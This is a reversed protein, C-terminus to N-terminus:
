NKLFSKFLIIMGFLLLGLFFGTYVEARTHRKLKLRSWGILPVFLVLLWFWGGFLMGVTLSFGTFLAIHASAKVYKTIVHLLLLWLLTAIIAIKLFAPGHFIFLAFLYLAGAVAYGLFLKGRQKKTSVDFDSFFKKKMGYWVFIAVCVMFIAMLVTWFVVSRQGTFFLILFPFVSLVVLPNFIISVARALKM